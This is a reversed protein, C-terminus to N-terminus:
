PLNLKRKHYSLLGDFLAKSIAARTANSKRFNERDHNPTASPHHPHASMASTYTGNISANHTKLDQELIVNEIFTAKKKYTEDHHGSANMATLQNKLKQIQTLEDTMDAKMGFSEVLEELANLTSNLRTIHQHSAQDTTTENNGESSDLPHFPCAHWTTSVSLGISYGESKYQMTKMKEVMRAARRLDDMLENLIISSRDLMIKQLADSDTQREKQSLSQFIRHTVLDTQVLIFNQYQELNAIAEQIPITISQVDGPLPAQYRPTLSPKYQYLFTNETDTSAAHASSLAFFLFFLFNVGKLLTNM